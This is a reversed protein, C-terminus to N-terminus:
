KSSPVFSEYTGDDFFVRIEKIKRSPKDIIKVGQMNSANIRSQSGYTTRTTSRSAAEPSTPVSMSAETDWLTREPMTRGDASALSNQTAVSPADSKQLHSSQASADAHQADANPLEQGAASSSAVLQEGEGFMLWNINIEPFAHHIAKVHNSTPNTRGTFISSLSAPSMGLRLAFDQQSLHAYEMVRRIRDKMYYPKYLAHHVSKRLSVTGRQWM